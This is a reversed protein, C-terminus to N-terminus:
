KSKSITIFIHYCVNRILVFYFIYLRSIYFNLKLKDDDIVLSLEDYIMICGNINVIILEYYNEWYTDIIEVANMSKIDVILYPDVIYNIEFQSM